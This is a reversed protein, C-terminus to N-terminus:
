KHKVHVAENKFWAKHTKTPWDVIKGAAKSARFCAVEQGAALAVVVNRDAPGANLNLDTRVTRKCIWRLPRRGQTALSM